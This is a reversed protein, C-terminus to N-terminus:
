LAKTKIDQLIEKASQIGSLAAGEMFGQWEYFYSSGNSGLDAWPRSNFGLMMKANTGYGLQAISQRKWLPLELNADLEVQRLVTFPVKLVVQTQSSANILSHCSLRLRM